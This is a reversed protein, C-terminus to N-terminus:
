PVLAVRFFRKLDTPELEINLTASMQSAGAAMASGPVTEWSSAIMDDSTEIHYSRGPFCNWTISFRDGTKAHSTIVFGKGPELRDFSGNADEDRLAELPIMLLEGPDVNGNDTISAPAQAGLIGGDATQYALAALYLNEPSSGFAQDIRITGEMQQGPARASQTTAGNTNLWSIYDNSSEAALYPKGTPVATTGAKGWPAPTTASGLATDGVMIFHDNGAEGPSWTAVYLLNGRVAAYITMGPNSLRYGPFDAVGDLTFPIPESSPPPSAPTTAEVSEAAVSTGAANRAALAYHYTTSPVRGADNWTLAATAGIAEGNRYVIYDVAGASASWSFLITTDSTAVATLGTPTAPPPGLGPTSAVAPSTPASDGFSNRAAVTYSYSTEPLLGGDNFSATTSNAIEDVDRYIVYSSAGAVADWTLSVTTPGTANASLNVPTDPATGSAPSVAFNWNQGGNNDWPQSNDGEANGTFVMNLETTGPWAALTYTWKGDVLTMAPRPTIRDQYGNRGIHIYVQPASALVRDAPNYSITIADANTPNAPSITVVPDPDTGGGGEGNDDEVFVHQIESKHINGRLDTAEIYYDLLKGRFNPVNGDTIKAFYYDAVENTPLFYDIQSNAAAANLADRTKPLERRTM